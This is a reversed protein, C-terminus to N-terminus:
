AEAVAVVWELGYAVREPLEAEARALGARYEREDLLQLTSISPGRLKRLATARDLTATQRLPVLRVRAFADELETVLDGPAPFRARDIAELSPFLRNMWFGDFHAPDFSAVVLRGDSGLVRRIERFTRPRDVLHASLWMVAREFWADRFPLEEARALKFGVGPAARRKAVALMERSSDIGWVKAGHEEALRSAFRGTGCGVDLVRRAGLDGERVLLDALESWNDDAPRLEDYTAALRDFDPASRGRRSTSM